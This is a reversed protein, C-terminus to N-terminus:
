DVGTSNWQESWFIDPTTASDKELERVVQGVDYLFDEPNGSQLCERLIWARINSSFFGGRMIDKM